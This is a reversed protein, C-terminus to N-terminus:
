VLQCINNVNHNKLLYDHVTVGNVITTKDPTLKPLCINSM